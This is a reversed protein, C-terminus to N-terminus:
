LRKWITFKDGGLAPWLLTLETKTVSLIVGKQYRSNAEDFLNLYKSTGDSNPKIEYRGKIKVQSFVASGDANLKMYDNVQTFADAKEDEEIKENRNKDSIWMTCKWEGIINDGQSSSEASQNQKETSSKGAVNSESTAAKNDGCNILFFFTAILPFAIKM